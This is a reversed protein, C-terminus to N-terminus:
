HKFSARDPPNLRTQSYKWPAGSPTIYSAFVLQQSTNSLHFACKRNAPYLVSCDPGVFVFYVFLACQYIFCLLVISSFIESGFLFVALSSYYLSYALSTTLIYVLYQFCSEDLPCLLKRLSFLSLGLLYDGSFLIFQTFCVRLSARKHFGFIPLSLIWATRHFHDPPVNFCLIHFYRIIVTLQVNKFCNNLQWIAISWQEYKGANYLWIKLKYVHGIFM